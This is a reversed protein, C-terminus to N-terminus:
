TQPRTQQFSKKGALRWNYFRHWPKILSLPYPDNPKRQLIIKQIPIISFGLLLFNKKRKKKTFNQSVTRSLTRSKLINTWMITSTFKNILNNCHKQKGPISIESNQRSTKLKSNLHRPNKRKIKPTPLPLQNSM